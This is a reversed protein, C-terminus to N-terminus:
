TGYVTQIAYQLNVVYLICIALNVLKFHFSSFKLHIKNTVRFLAFCSFELLQLGGVHRSM